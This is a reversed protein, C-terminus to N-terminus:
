SRRLCDPGRGREAGEGPSAQAALWDKIHKTARCDDENYDVIGQLKEQWSEPDSQYRLYWAISDLANVEERRWRFGLHKAIDKLGNTPTPFAYARTAVRHLDVLNPFVRKEVVDALGHRAALQALHWREYNHWHYVPVDGLGLLFDVFARFMAGEERIRWATFPRYRCDGGECVLVGILYDVQELGDQEGTPDTGELDLFVERPRDPFQLASRDLAICTGHHIARANVVLREATARGLGPIGALSEPSASSLDWVKRLGRSLLKEKLRPGVLPVLSIDRQKLAMHNTWAMWPWEGGNYTPSPRELGDLIRRAGAIADRLAEEHEAYRFTREVHDRNILTFREPRQGQIRSLLHTYFAAQLIHSEEIRAALKIEVVEYAHDGFVSRVGERKVLVDPRGQLDEPLFFMPLGCIAPEGRAMADLLRAFGELPDPSPVPACGPWRSALVRREHEIGRELLLERYPGLPDRHEPPGFKDCWVTYPSRRYLAVPRATIEGPLGGATCAQFVEAAISM